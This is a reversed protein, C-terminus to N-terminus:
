RPLQFLTHLADPSDLVHDAGWEGLRGPEDLYGWAAIVTGCGAARGAAVDREDDGIMWAQRPQGGLVQLAHLVPDPDPKRRPLSDGGIVVPTRTQWGLAQLLQRTLGIPKNTVIGWGIGADDLRDLFGEIHAYPRTHAAIADAYHQLFSPLLVDIGREDLEPFGAQLLRRGGRSVLRRLPDPDLEARGQEHLVANLAGILDPATDLLTGDLDFLLRSGANLEIM